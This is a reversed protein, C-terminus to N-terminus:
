RDLSEGVALDVVEQAPEDEGSLWAYYEAFHRSIIGEARGTNAFLAFIVARATRVSPHLDLLEVLTDDFRVPGDGADLEVLEDEPKERGLLGVCATALADAAIGSDTLPNIPQGGRGNRYIRALPIAQYRAWLLGGFGPLEIDITQAAQQEHVRARLASLLSGPTGAPTAESDFEFEPADVPEDAAPTGPELANVAETVTM